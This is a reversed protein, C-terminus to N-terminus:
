GPQLCSLHLCAGSNTVAVVSFTAADLEWHGWLVVALQTSEPQALSMSMPQLTCGAARLRATSRFSPGRGPWVRQGEQEQAVIKQTEPARQERESYLSQGSPYRKEM